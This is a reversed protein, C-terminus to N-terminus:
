SRIPTPSTLRWHGYGHVQVENEAAWRWRPGADRPSLRSTDSSEIEARDGVPLWMTKRCLGAVPSGLKLGPLSVRDMAGTIVSPPPLLISHEIESQRGPGTVRDSTYPGIYVDEIVAGAGIVAPGRVLSNKM